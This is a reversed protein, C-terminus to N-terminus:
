LLKGLDPVEVCILLLAFIVVHQSTIDLIVISALFPDHSANSVTGYQCICDLLLYVHPIEIRGLLRTILVTNDSASGLFVVPLFPDDSSNTITCICNLLLDVNGWGTLQFVFHDNLDLLVVASWSLSLCVFVFDYTMEERINKHEHENLKRSLVYFRM